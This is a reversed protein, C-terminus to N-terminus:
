CTPRPGHCQHPGIKRMRLQDIISQRVYEIDSLGEVSEGDVGSIGLPSPSRGDVGDLTHGTSCAMDSGPVDPETFFLEEGAATEGM